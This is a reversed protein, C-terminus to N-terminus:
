QRRLQLLVSQAGPFASFLLFPVSRVESELGETLFHVCGLGSAALLELEEGCLPGEECACIM